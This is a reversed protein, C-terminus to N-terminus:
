IVFLVQDETIANVDEFIIRVGQDDYVLNGDQMQLSSQFIGFDGDDGNYPFGTLQLVDWAEFDMITSTGSNSADFVFHDQLLGGSLIDTGSGGSILDHLGQAQVWTKLDDATDARFEASQSFGRVVQARTGGGEMFDLWGQLGGADSARDLVNQYLQEVFDADDLSGYTNRFELSNVFGGIMADFETGSGLLEAWGLFGGIDPDRDLTARYVRYIEDTWHTESQSLAFSAADNATTRQFEASQSFGLVVGERTTGNSIADLWGQVGGADGERGLVNQYLLNVFASDDLSGYTNQFEASRVFGRAMQDLDLTGEFLGTVWGEYGAADPARALTAQYMRFVQGAVAGTLDAQIGDGYLTDDGEGGRFDNAVTTGSIRDDFRSGRIVEINNLSQTFAAGDWEGTAIGTDLNVFVGATVDGRDYRVLDAGAGGDVTDNGGQTIFRDNGDSGAIADALHSGQIEIRAGADANITDVGGFGDNAVIGTSLDILLGMAADTSGRADDRYDLRFTGESAGVNFVDNGRGGSAVLFGNGGAVTVNFTDDFSTADIGLGDAQMAANVNLFTTTGNGAGKVISATNANGDVNITQAAEFVLNWHDIDLYGTVMESADITDNGTHPNIYDFYTNDGPNLYDDGTGGFLRDTGGEGELSDNGDEGFLRDDGDEGDIADDGSRGYFIEDAASGELTDNGGTARVEEINSLQHTFAEGDWTGTAIGDLFDVNVGPSIGSRDYRVLDIGGGGDLTDDGTVLIFREDADSGKISDAHVTGRLEIRNGGDTINLTDRGGHGDNSVIGTGLDAVIGSAPDELWSYRYSLRVLGTTTVNIVDDGQDGNVTTFVDADPTVTITDNGRSGAIEFGWIAANPDIFTDVGQGAKTVTATNSAGDYVATIPGDLRAYTTTIFHENDIGSLDITDNGASARIFDGGRDNSQGPIILDNGLGGSLRDEFDSGTLMIDSTVFRLLNSLDVNGNASSADLQINASSLLATLLASNGQSQADIAADFTNIDWDINTATLVPLNTSTTTTIGTITGQFGSPQSADEAFGTGSLTSLFGSQADRLVVRTSTSSLVSIDDFADFIYDNTNGSFIIDITNANVTVM